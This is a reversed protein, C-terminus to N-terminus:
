LCVPLKSLILLKGLVIWYVLPTGLIGDYIQRVAFRKSTKM